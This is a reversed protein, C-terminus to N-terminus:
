SEIGVTDGRHNRPDHRRACLPLYVDELQGAVADWGPVTGEAARVLDGRTHSATLGVFAARADPDLHPTREGMLYPLWIAGNAGAPARM